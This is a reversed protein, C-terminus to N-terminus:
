YVVLNCVFLSRAVVCECVRGIAVEHVYPLHPAYVEM